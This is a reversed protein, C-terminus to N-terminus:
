DTEPKPRCLYTNNQFILVFSEWVTHYKLYNYKPREIHPDYTIKDQFIEQKVEQIDSILKDVEEIKDM